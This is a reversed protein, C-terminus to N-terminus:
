AKWIPRRIVIGLKKPTTKQIILRWLGTGESEYLVTGMIVALFNPNLIKAVRQKSM